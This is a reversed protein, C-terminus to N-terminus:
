LARKWALQDFNRIGRIFFDVVISGPYIDTV